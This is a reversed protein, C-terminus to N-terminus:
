TLLTTASTEPASYHLLTPRNMYYFAVPITLMVTFLKINLFHMFANYRGTKTRTNWITVGFTNCPM